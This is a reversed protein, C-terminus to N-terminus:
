PKGTPVTAVRECQEGRRMNLQLQGSCGHTATTREQATKFSEGEDM